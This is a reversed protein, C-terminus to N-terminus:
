GLWILSIYEWPMPGKWAWWAEFKLSLLDTFASRNYHHNLETVGQWRQVQRQKAAELRESEAAGM